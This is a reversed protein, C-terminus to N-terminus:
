QGRSISIHGCQRASGAPVVRLRTMKSILFGSAIAIGDFFTHILLGGLAAYATSSDLFEEHHTEEGFHFHKPVAHEFFHVIFYGLLILAPSGTPSLQFSEPIMDAFVMPQGVATFEAGPIHFSRIFKAFTLLYKGDLKADAAMAAASVAVGEHLSRAFDAGVVGDRAGDRRHVATEDAGQVGLGHQM